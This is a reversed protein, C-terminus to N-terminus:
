ANRGEYITVLLELEEIKRKTEAILQPTVDRWDYGDFEMMRRLGSELPELDDLLTDHRQKFWDIIQDYRGM